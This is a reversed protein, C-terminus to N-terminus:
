AAARRLGERRHKVMAPKRKILDLVLERNEDRILDILQSPNAIAIATRSIPGIDGDVVVQIGPMRNLARQTLKGAQKGGYVITLDFIKWAILDNNLKGYGYYDWYKHKSQARIQTLELERVELTPTDSELELELTKHIGFFFNAM